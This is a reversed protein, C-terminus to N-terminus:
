NAAGSGEDQDSYGTVAASDGEVTKRYIAVATKGYTRVEELAAHPPLKLHRDHELFFLGGEGLVPLVAEILTAVGESHYPPDALILDYEQGAQSAAWARADSKIFRCPAFEDLSLANKRALDLAKPDRDVFEIRAAGRSFAELGLSGSGCYLDAVTADDLNMRSGILNFM